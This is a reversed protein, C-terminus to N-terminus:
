LIDSVLLILVMPGVNERLYKMARKKQVKVTDISIRLLEAIEKNKKGKLHLEFVEKCRPPLKDIAAFIRRYIEEEEIEYETNDLESHESKVSTIHKEQVKLHKIHNLCKNRVSNYLPPLHLPPCSGFLLVLLFWAPLVILESM